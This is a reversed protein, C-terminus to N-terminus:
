PHSFAQSGPIFEELEISGIKTVFAFFDQGPEMGQEIKILVEA